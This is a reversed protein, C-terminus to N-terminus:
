QIPVRLRVTEPALCAENSCAQLRLDASVLRCSNVTNITSDQQIPATISVTDEYVLLPTDQFGLRVKVGKPYKPESVTACQETVSNLSTPILAPELVTAANVHWGQAFALAVSLKGNSSTAKIRVKAKAAYVHAGSEGQILENAARLLGSHSQPQKLTSDSFTALISRARDRYETNGTRHYLRVLSLAAISNGSYIADDRATILNVLLPKQASMSSVRFANTEADFFNTELYDALSESRQLWQADQTVDYLALFAMILQAYDNLVAPTTNANSSTTRALVKTQSNWAQQWVRDATKIATALWDNKGLTQYGTILAQIAMANWATIIKTDIIPAPRKNRAVSLAKKIQQAQEASAANPEFQLVNSNNFNGNRSLKYLKAATLLQEESLVQYLQTLDWVYFAGEQHDSEADVASYFGGSPDQLDQLMFELTSTAVDRYRAEGTVLWAKFYVQALQAHNYLMKEFHPVQWNSDVSYRHFGGGIQDHLGSNAIASLRVQLDNLWPQNSDSIAYDLLTLMEPERPFASGTTGTQTTTLDRAIANLAQQLATSDLKASEVRAKNSTQIAQYVRQAQEIVAKRNTQWTNSIQALLSSFREPPFYTGGFFPLGKPTLVATLPWGANGNLRQVALMYLEDVDPHQERDVKIAIFHQNIFSAIDTDEFSEREMVHCWHCSSYGISLLIPKDEKQAAQMAADSWSWWNIPNHAHQLLYLSNEHILRNIYIPEGQEDLHKTRVPYTGKKALYTESLQNQAVSSFSLLTSALLLALAVIHKYKGANSTSPPAMLKAQKSLIM